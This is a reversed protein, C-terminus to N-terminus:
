GLESIRILGALNLIKIQRKDTEILKESAFQSLVRIANSSNMNSYAALDARKLKINLTKGDSLLGHRDKLQLLSHALRGRIHKQTLMLLRENADNSTHALFRIIKLSFTPNTRLLELFKDKQIICIETPEIATASFPYTTDLIVSELGLFDVSKNFDLIADQLGKKSIKVKGFKLCLLGLSKDGEQYVMEGSKYSKTIRGQNILILDSESLDDFFSLQRFSCNLCSDKSCSLQTM